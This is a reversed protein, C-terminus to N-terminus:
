TTDFLSSWMLYVFLVEALVSLYTVRSIDIGIKIWYLKMYGLLCVFYLTSIICVILSMNLRLFLHEPTSSLALRQEWVRSRCLCCLTWNWEVLRKSLCLGNSYEWRICLLTSSEVVCSPCAQKWWDYLFGGVNFDLAWSGVEVSLSM